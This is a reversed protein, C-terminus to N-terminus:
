LPRVAHVMGPDDVDRHLTFGLQRAFKLMKDNGALIFGEMSAMGRAKAADILTLMLIGAVGSGQWADDIAVAFECSNDSPNAVYRAVGIELDQGDRLIIAVLALHREYDIETLYKLKGPALEKLTSMFRKYRSDPSLHKVFDQELTADAARIPRITVPSGDFLYRTRVLDAPYDSM